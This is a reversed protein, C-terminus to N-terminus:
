PADGAARTGPAHSYGFVEMTIALSANDDPRQLQPAAVTLREVRLYHPHTRLASMFKTLQEATMAATFRIGYGALGAETVKPVSAVTQISVGSSAGISLLDRQVSAGADQDVPLVYFKSWISANALDALQKRLEPESDARGRARALERRTGTRWEDQSLLLWAVPDIVGFWFIVVVVVLVLLALARRQRQPRATLHDILNM